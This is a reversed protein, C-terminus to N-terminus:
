KGRVFTKLKEWVPLLGSDKVFKYLKEKATRDIWSRNNWHYLVTTDSIESETNAILGSSFVVSKGDNLIQTEDRRNWGLSGAFVDTIRTPIPMEDYTGDDKVFHSGDYLELCRRITENGKAAGLVAAEIFLDDTDGRKEIGTFLDYELWGDVNGFVQVDSDLYIGGETYLAYLRVYDSVFAWKGAEYAESVYPVSEFDFSESDWCKIEYGPFHKRWSKLCAKVNQPKPESSFWCYHIVKPIMVVRFKSLNVQINVFNPGIAASVM